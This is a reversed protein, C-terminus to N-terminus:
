FFAFLLETRFFGWAQQKIEMGDLRGNRDPTVPARCSLTTKTTKCTTPPPGTETKEAPAPAAAVVRPAQVVPTAAGGANTGTRPGLGPAPAPAVM